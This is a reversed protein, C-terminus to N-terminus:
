LRIGTIEFFVDKDVHPMRRVAMREEFSLENWFVKWSVKYDFYKFDGYKGTTTRVRYRVLRFRCCVTYGYSTILDLFEAQTLSRNFAEYSIRKSMFVGASNRCSNFDGSNCDGSNDDETNRASLFLINRSHYWGDEKLNFVGNVEQRNFHLGDIDAEPLFVTLEVTEPVTEGNLGRGQELLSVGKELEEIRKNLDKDMILGGDIKTEV